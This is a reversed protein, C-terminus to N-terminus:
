NTDNDIKDISYIIINKNQPLNKYEDYLNEISKIQVKRFINDYRFTISYETPKKILKPKTIKGALEYNMHKIAMDFLYDNENDDISKSKSKSKNFSNSKITKIYIITNKNYNSLKYFTIPSFM